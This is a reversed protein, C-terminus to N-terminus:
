ATREAAVGEASRRRDWNIEADSKRLYLPQLESPQVFEERIARPHALEVLAGASPYALGVDGVEVRRRDDFVEAYRIAGDGVLLCGEGMAMVEAALEAPSCVIPAAVQQV